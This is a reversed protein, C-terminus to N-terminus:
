HRQAALHERAALVFARGYADSGYDPLDWAAIERIACEGFNSDAFAKAGATFLESKDSEDHNEM